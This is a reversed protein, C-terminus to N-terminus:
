HGAPAKEGATVSIKLRNERPPLPCTAFATFACPPNYAYNFDIFTKGSKDPFPVYLYRGSAYTSEGNTPDSFIVFLKGEDELTILETKVGELEFRLKGMVRWEIVQGLVNTINIFENFKPEFIADLKWDPNYDYTVNPEFQALNPHKLDRLRMAFEGGRNIVTWRWRDFNLVGQGYQEIPFQLTKSETTGKHKKAAKSSFTFWVSDAYVEFSGITNKGAETAISLSYSGIQNLYSNGPKLWLLGALNVWGDEAILEENRVHKWREFEANQGFALSCELILVLLFYYKPKM